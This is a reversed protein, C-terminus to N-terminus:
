RAGEVKGEVVAVGVQVGVVLGHVAVQVLAVRLVAGCRGEIQSGGFLKVRGRGTRKQTM